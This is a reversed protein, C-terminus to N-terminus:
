RLTLHLRRKTGQNISPPASEIASISVFTPSENCRPISLKPKLWNKLTAKSLELHKCIEDQSYRSLLSLAQEKLEISMHRRSNGESRWALFSSKVAELELLAAEKM